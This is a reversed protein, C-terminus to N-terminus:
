GEPIRSPYPFYTTPSLITQISNRILLIPAKQPSVQITIINLPLINPAPSETHIALHVALM